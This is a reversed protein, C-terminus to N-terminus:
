IQINVVGDKNIDARLAEPETEHKTQPLSLAIGLSNASLLEEVGSGDLNARRIKRTTWDTWYLKGGAVDLAISRVVSELRVRTLYWFRKAQQIKATGYDTCYM